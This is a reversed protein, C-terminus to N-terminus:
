INRSWIWPERWRELQRGTGCGVGWKYVHIDSKASDMCIQLQACMFNARMRLTHALHARRLFSNAGTESLSRFGPFHHRPILGTWRQAGCIHTSVLTLTAKQTGLLFYSLSGLNVSCPIRPSKRSQTASVGGGLGQWMRVTDSLRWREMLLFIVEFIDSSECCLLIAGWYRLLYPNQWLLDRHSEVADCM